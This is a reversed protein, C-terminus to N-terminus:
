NRDGLQPGTTCALLTVGWHLWRAAYTETEEQGRAGRDPIWEGARGACWPNTPKECALLWPM